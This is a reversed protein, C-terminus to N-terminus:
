PAGEGGARGRRATWGDRHPRYGVAERIEPQGYYGMYVLTRVGWFGRRLALLPADQLTRLWAEQRPPDLHSFPRGYRLVPLFEVLRLFLRLQRKMAEPRDRLAGEVIGELRTWGEPSLERSEPVIVRAMSRLPGQLSAPLAPV